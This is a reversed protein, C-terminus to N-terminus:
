KTIPRVPWLRQRFRIRRIPSFTDIISVNKQLVHLQPLEGRDTRVPVDPLRARLDM